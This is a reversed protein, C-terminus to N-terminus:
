GTREGLRAVRESPGADVDLTRAAEHTGALADVVDEHRIGHPRATRQDVRAELDLGFALDDQGLDLVPRPSGGLDEPPDGVLTEVDVQEVRGAVAPEDEAAVVHLPDAADQASPM